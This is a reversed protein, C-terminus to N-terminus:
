NPPLQDQVSAGKETRFSQKKESSMDVPLTNPVTSSAVLLDSVDEGGLDRKLTLGKHCLLTQRFLRNRIFDMYQESRIINQSIRKLTEEVEQPFGSTLMTSFDAEALYQLDYSDAREIFEHFYIPKNVEEMHDHFLYWDRSHRILNLEDKLILGFYNNDTPVSSSLFDVLARAQDMRKKYDEFLNAHYLMMHRIMERMHWGPYTNYSIYAIGQEALNNSSLSLIKEQVNKTVWSFVGHCIIYDFSGWSTDVDVISANEIHINKLNLDNIAARGKEVQRRSLDIGIFESDPLHYAMPILNGGSASGLELVRCQTIPVPSLGFLRGLTSLRNPHSQPFPHSGYSVKDYSTQIKTNKM